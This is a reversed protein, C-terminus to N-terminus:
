GDKIAYGVGRVTYLIKIGFPGEIKARLYRIYVNKKRIDELPVRVM